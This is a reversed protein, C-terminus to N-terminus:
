RGRRSEDGGDARIVLRVPEGTSATARDPFSNVVVPLSDTSNAYCELSVAQHLSRFGVRVQDMIADVPARGRNAELSGYLMWLDTAQPVQLGLGTPPDVELVETERDWVASCVHSAWRNTTEAIHQVTTVSAKYSPLDRRHADSRAKEVWERGWYTLAIVKARDTECERWFDRSSHISINDMCDPAPPAHPSSAWIIAVTLAVWRM